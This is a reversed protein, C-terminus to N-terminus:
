RVHTKKCRVYAYAYIYMCVSRYLFSACWFSVGFEFLTWKCRWSFFRWFIFSVELKFQARCVANRCRHLLRLDGIFVDARAHVSAMLCGPTYTYVYIYTHTYIYIYIYTYMYTYIYKYIYICVYMYIHICIHIYTYIYKYKYICICKYVYM